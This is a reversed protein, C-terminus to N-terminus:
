NRKSEYEQDLVTEFSRLFEILEKITDERMNALSERWVKGLNKHYELHGAFAAKGKETLYLSIEAGSSTSEKRQIYGKDVLKSVMQSAAGKSVGQVEALSKLNLGPNEGIYEITHVEKRTLLADTGYSRKLEENRIYKHIIRDMTQAIEIYERM